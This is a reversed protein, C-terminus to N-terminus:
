ARSARLASARVAIRRSVQFGDLYVACKDRPMIRLFAWDEPWPEQESVTLRFSSRPNGSRSLKVEVSEWEFYEQGDIYVVCNGLYPPRAIQDFYQSHTWPTGTVSGGSASSTGDKGVGGTGTNGGAGPTVDVPPLEITGNAM